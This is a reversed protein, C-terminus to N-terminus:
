RMTAHGLAIAPKLAQQWRARATLKSAKLQLHGAELLLAVLESGSIPQHQKSAHLELLSCLAASPLLSESMLDHESTM